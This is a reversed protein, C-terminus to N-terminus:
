KTSNTERSKLLNRADDEAINKNQQSHQDVYTTQPLESPITQTEKATLNVRL